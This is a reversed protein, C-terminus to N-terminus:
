DDTGTFLGKKKESADQEAQAAEAVAGAAADSSAQLDGVNKALDALKAATPDLIRKLSEMQGLYALMGIGMMGMMGGEEFNPYYTEAFNPIAGSSAYTEKGSGSKMLNTKSAKQGKLIHDNLIIKDASKGHKRIQKDNVVVPSQVRDSWLVRAKEGHSEERKIADKIGQEYFNPIYGKAFERVVDMNKHQSKIKSLFSHSTYPAVVTGKLREKGRLDSPEEDYARKLRNAYIKQQPPAIAKIRGGSAKTAKFIKQGQATIGKDKRSPGGGYLVAFSDFNDVAQLSLIPQGGM